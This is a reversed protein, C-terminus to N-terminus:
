ENLLKRANLPKGKLLMQILHDLVHRLELRQEANMLEPERLAILLSGTMPVGKGDAADPYLGHEPRFRYRVSARIDEGSADDHWLNLVYGAMALVELEFLPLAFTDAPDQLRSLTQQYHAFLEPQPQHQWLARLLLENAYVARILAGQKLAYRCTEDAHFLTFVEGRGTWSVELLRFPELMGKTRTGKGKSFKAVCTIKGADRTFMDLLFSTDRYPNRRLIFAPSLDPTL